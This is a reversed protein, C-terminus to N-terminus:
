AAVSQYASMEDNSVPRFLNQQFIKRREAVLKQCNLRAPYSAIPYVVRKKQASSSSSTRRSSNRPTPKILGRGICDEGLGRSKKGKLYAPPLGALCLNTIGDLISSVMVEDPPEDSSCFSSSSPSIQTRVVYRRQAVRILSENKTSQKMASSPATKPPASLTATTTPPAANVLGNSNALRPRHTHNLDKSQRNAKFQVPLVSKRGLGAVM